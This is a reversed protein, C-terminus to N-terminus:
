LPVGGPDISLNHVTLNGVGPNFHTVDDAMLNDARPLEFRVGPWEAAIWALIVTANDIRLGGNVNEPKIKVTRWGRGALTSRVLCFGDADTAYNPAAPEDTFACGPVDLLRVLGDKAGRIPCAALIADAHAIWDAWPCTIEAIFGRRFTVTERWPRARVRCIHRLLEIDLWEGWNTMRGGPSGGHGELLARERRRLPCLSCEAGIPCVNRNRGDIVRGSQAFVPDAAAHANEPYKALEVQVRIFEARESQGREDLWDAYIRRPLDDDPAAIVARLFPDNPSATLQGTNEM